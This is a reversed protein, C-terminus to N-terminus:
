YAGSDWLMKLSSSTAEVKSLSVERKLLKMYYILGEGYKPGCM